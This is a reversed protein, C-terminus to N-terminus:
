GRRSRASSPQRRWRGAASAAAPSSTTSRATPSTSAPVRGADAVPRHRQLRRDGHGARRHRAPLRRGQQRRGDGRGLTYGDADHRSCRRGARREAHQRQAPRRRRRRRRRRAPAAGTGAAAPVPRRHAGGASGAPPAAPRAVSAAVAGASRRGGATRGATPPRDRRHAATRATSLSYAAARRPRRRRAASSRRSRVRRCSRAAACCCRHRRRRGAILVLPRLWPNWDPTRGLLECAGGRATVAVTAACCCAPAVIRRPAEVATGRASASWRASRRRWPWRTTSTSSARASASCSRRHRGALRGVAAARRPHPRHAPAAGTCCSGPSSCSCRPRSCGRRGPRRVRRQVAADLRDRGVHRRAPRAGGGVSGTENGTLRGFGNYGFILELVSNNQSGGIYPGRRRRGCSARDRGVLRGRRADRRGGAVLQWIRRRAAAAGRGPVRARVRAARPVGAADQHPVGFGVLSAPSRRAM